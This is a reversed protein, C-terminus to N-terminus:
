PKIVAQCFPAILQVPYSLLDQQLHIIGGTCAGNARFIIAQDAVLRWGEPLELKINKQLIEYDPQNTSFPYTEFRFNLGKQYAQYSLSSIQSMIEDRQYAAQVSDYMAMLRPAVLGTLLAFIFLVIMLELLTYGKM